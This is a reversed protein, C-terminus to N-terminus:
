TDGDLSNFVHGCLFRKVFTWLLMIWKCCFLLCVVVTLWSIFPYIFHPVAMCINSLLLFCLIAYAVIHIFGPFVISIWLLWVCIGCITYNWKYSIGLLPLDVSAFLLINTALPHPSSPLGLSRLYICAKKQSYHFHKSILYDYHSYLETFSSFGM